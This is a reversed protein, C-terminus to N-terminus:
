YLGGLLSNVQFVDAEAHILIDLLQLVFLVLDTWLSIINRLFFCGKIKARLLCLCKFDSVHECPCVVFGM